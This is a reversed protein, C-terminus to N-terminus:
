PQPITRDSGGEEDSEEDDLITDLTAIGPVDHECCCSLGCQRALDLVPLFVVALVVRTGKLPKFSRSATAGDNEKVQIGCGLCCCCGCSLIAILGTVLIHIICFPIYLPLSLCLTFRYAWIHRHDVFNQKCKECTRIMDGVLHVHTGCQFCMDDKCSLCVIHDCGSEKEIPAGCHSCPKTFNRIAKESKQVQRAGKSSAYEECTKNPHVDGHLSCFQHGCSPCAIQNVSTSTQNENKCALQDCKSCCILSPNQLMLQFKQFRDWDTTGASGLSVSSPISGYQPMDLRCLLDEVQEEQFTNECYHEANAPCVIPIDKVSVAHKCHETLCARCFEHDCGQVLLREKSYNGIEEDGGTDLFKEYCIPCDESKSTSNFSLEENEVSM